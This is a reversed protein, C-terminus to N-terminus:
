YVTFALPQKFDPKPPIFEPPRILEFTLAKQQCGVVCVGCGLCKEKIVMAKVKKSGTVKLMEIAGFPCREVCTQCGKCLETNVVAQFRSPAVVENIRGSELAPEFTSCCDACCNCM